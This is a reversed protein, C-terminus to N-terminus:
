LGRSLERCTISRRDPHQAMAPFRRSCKVLCCGEDRAQRNTRAVLTEIVPGREDNLLHVEDPSPAARAHTLMQMMHGDDGASRHCTAACLLLLPRFRPRPPGGSLAGIILLRVSAAVSVEGGKRTIVDWKEPTTVIM